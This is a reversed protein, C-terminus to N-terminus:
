TESGNILANIIVPQTLFKPLLYELRQTAVIDSLVVDCPQGILLSKTAVLLAAIYEQRKGTRASELALFELLDFRPEDGLQTLLFSFARGEGRDYCEARHAACRMCAFGENPFVRCPGMHEKCVFPGDAGVTERYCDLCIIPYGEEFKGFQDGTAFLILKPEKCRQCVDLQFYRELTM